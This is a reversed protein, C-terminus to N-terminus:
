PRAHRPGPPSGAPGDTRSARPANALIAGLRDLLGDAGLPKPLIDTALEGARAVVSDDGHGSVLLVPIGPRQRRLREIMELCPLGPMVIDSVVADIAGRHVSSADVAESGNSAELVRYGGRTLIRSALGRVEPDDEVLLITAGDAVRSTVPRDASSAPQAPLATAPPLYIDFRTGDGPSSEVTIAGSSQKVIGYVTSLGLGTGKGKPKTTFFPEFIRAMTADDMGTGTDSMMIKVYRGPPLEGRQEGNDVVSTSIALTGGTPMADRANVALNVLVQEIAGRDVHIDPLGEGLVISLDIDEELLRRMWRGVESVVENVPLRAPRMVQKRSYALLQRTLDAARQAADRISEMDQRATDSAVEPLVFEVGNLIITLLNNFDHAVGAALRGVAEMKQAQLFEEKLKRVETLDRLGVVRTHRGAHAYSRAVVECPVSTGDRRVLETEYRASDRARIRDAVTTRHKEAILDLAARGKLEELGFGLMRALGPSADVVVGDEHVLIGDFSAEVVSRYRLENERLMEEARSRETVDRSVAIVVTEGHLEALSGTADVRRQEGGPVDILLGLATGQGRALIEQFISQAEARASPAVLATFPRGVIDSRPRGALAEARRNVDRVLGHTDLVTIADSSGDMLTARAAESARLREAAKEHLSARELAIGVQHGFADLLEITEDDWASCALNLIGVRAQRTWLPVTLHHRPGPIAPDMAALRECEVISTTMSPHGEFLRRCTCGTQLAGPELLSPPLNRTAAVRFGGDIRVIVMGFAARSLTMAEDLAADAVDEITVSRNLKRALRLMASPGAGDERTM